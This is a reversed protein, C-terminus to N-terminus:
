RGAARLRRDLEEMIRDIDSDDRVIAGRLDITYNRGEQTVVVPVAAAGTASQLASAMQAASVTAGVGESLASRELSALVNQLQQATLNDLASLGATGFSLDGFADNGTLDGLGILGKNVADILADYGALTEQLANEEMEMAHDRIMRDIQEQLERKERASKSQRQKKQLEALEDQYDDEEYAARKASLEASLLSKQYSLWDSAMEKQLDYQKKLAETEEDRQEKLLAVRDDYAKKAAKKQEDTALAATQKEYRAKEEAILADYRAKAEAVATEGKDDQYWIAHGGAFDMMSKYQGNLADMRQRYSAQDAELTAAATQRIGELVAQQRAAEAAAEARARAAAAASARAQADKKDQEEQEKQAAANGKIIDKLTQRNAQATEAFGVVYGTAGDHGLVKMLKSPSHSDQGEAVGTLAAQAMAYGAGYADQSGKRVEGAFGEVAFRGMRATERSPSHADLGRQTGQVYARATSYGMQYAQGAYGGAGQVFGAGANSGAETAGDRATGLGAVASDALEQGANQADTAGSVMQQAFQSALDYDDLTMLQLLDMQGLADRLVEPMDDGMTQAMAQLTQHMPALSEYMVQASERVEPTVISDWGVARLQERLNDQIQSTLALSDQTPDIGMNELQAYADSLATQLVDGLVGKAAQMEEAYGATVRSGAANWLSIASETANKALQEDRAQQAAALDAQLQADNIGRGEAAAINTALTYYDEYQQNIWDENAQMMANGRELLGSISEASLETNQAELEFRLQAGKSEMEVVGSKIASLKEYQAQIAEQEDADVIGDVLADNILRALELGM